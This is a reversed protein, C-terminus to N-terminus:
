TVYGEIEKEVARYEPLTIVKAKTDVEIWSKPLWIEEEDFLFLYAAETEHIIDDYNVDIIKSSKRM